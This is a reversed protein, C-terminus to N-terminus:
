SKSTFSGVLQLLFGLIIIILAGRACWGRRQAIKQNRNIRKEDGGNWVLEMGNPLIIPVPPGFFFLVVVGAIDLCLGIKVLIEM